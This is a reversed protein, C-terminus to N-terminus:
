PNRLIGWDRIIEKFMYKYMIQMFSLSRHYKNITFHLYNLSIHIRILVIYILFPFISLYPRIILYISIHSKNHIYLKYYLLIIFHSSEPLNINSFIYLPSLIITTYLYIIIINIPFHLHIILYNNIISISHM